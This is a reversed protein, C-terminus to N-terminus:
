NLNKRRNIEKKILTFQRNSQGKVSSNENARRILYPITKDIPGFPILKIINYGQSSLAYSINDSMGYLQSLWVRKDEPRLNNDKMLNILYLSSEENHSGIWLSANEINEIGFKLSENYEKDTSLKSPQIPSNYGNQLARNREKEMYAGRVLKIGYYYKKEKSVKLNRKIKSLTHSRIM